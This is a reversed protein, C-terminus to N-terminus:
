PLMLYLNYRFSSNGSLNTNSFASLFRVQWRYASFSHLLVFSHLDHTLVM